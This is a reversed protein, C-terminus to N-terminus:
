CHYAKWVPKETHKWKVFSTKLEPTLFHLDDHYLFMLHDEGDIPAVQLDRIFNTPRNKRLTKTKVLQSDKLEHLQNGAALYLRSDLSVLGNASQELDVEGTPIFNEDYARLKSKVLGVYLQGDFQKLTQVANGESPMEVVKELEGQRHRYVNGDYSGVLVDKGVDLYSFEPISLKVCDTLDLDSNLVFFRKDGATVYLNEGDSKIEYVASGLDTIPQANFDRSLLFLKGGVTGYVVGAETEAFATVYDDRINIRSLEEDLSDNFVTVQNGQSIFIPM